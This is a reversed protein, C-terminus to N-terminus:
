ISIEDSSETMQVEGSGQRYAPHFALPPPPPVTTEDNEGAYSEMETDVGALSEMETDIESDHAIEDVPTLPRASEQFQSSIPVRMISGQSEKSGQSSQHELDPAQELEAENEEQNERDKDIDDQNFFEGDVENVATPSIGNATMTKAMDVTNPAPLFTTGNGGGNCNCYISTCKHVDITNAYPDNPEEYLSGNLNNSILSIDERVPEPSPPKRRFKRAVLLALAILAAVVFLLFGLAAFSDDEQPQVMIAAGAIIRPEGCKHDGNRYKASTVGDVETYDNGDMSERIIDLADCIELGQHGDGDDGWGPHISMEGKVVSCRVAHGDGCWDDDSYVFLRTFTLDLRLFIIVQESYNM